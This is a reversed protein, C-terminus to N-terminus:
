HGSPLSELGLDCRKRELAANWRKAWRRFYKLRLTAAASLDRHGLPDRQLNYLDEVGRGEIYSYAWRRGVRMFLGLDTDLIPLDNNPDEDARSAAVQDAPYRVSAMRAFVRRANWLGRGDDAIHRFSRGDSCPHSAAGAYDLITEFVDDFTVLRLSRRGPLVEAPWRIVIPTRFGRDHVSTKGRDDGIPNDPYTPETLRQEWGNDALYIVITNARLGRDDLFDLIEGVRQDMRTMNGFYEVSSETLGLGSYLDKLDQSPDTPLHPLKPAVWAFWPGTQGDIFDYLPAMSDRGFTDAGDVSLLNPERTMTGADFGADDFTGEWMKGGAFSRYGAQRLLRPLTFGVHQAIRLTPTEPHAARLDATMALWTHNRVGALLTRLSARCVSASAYGNAFVVGESALRDLNPTRVFEHGQFGYYSYDIDDGIFLLINPPQEVASARSCASLLLIATAVRHLYRMRGTKM